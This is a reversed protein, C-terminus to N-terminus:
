GHGDRPQEGNLRIPRPKYGMDRPRYDVDDSSSDDDKDGRRREREKHHRRFDETANFTAM